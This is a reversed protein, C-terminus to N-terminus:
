YTGEALDVAGEQAAVTSVLGSGAVGSLGLVAARKLMQRRTVRQTIAADLITALPTDSMPQEESTVSTSIPIQKKMSVIKRRHKARPNSRHGITREQRQGNINNGGWQSRAPQACVSNKECGTVRVWNPAGQRVRVCPKM